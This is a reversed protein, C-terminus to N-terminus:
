RGGFRLGVLGQIDTTKLTGTVEGPDRIYQNAMGLMYRGDILLSAKGSLPIAFAVNGLLGYDLNYQGAEAFTSEAAEGTLNDTTKVKGTGSAAYGGLGLVVGRSLWFKLLLPVQITNYKFTVDLTSVGAADAGKVDFKKQYYLGGLELGVTRGLPFEFLLGGGMGLKAKGEILNASADVLNTAKLTGYHGVGVLSVRPGAFASSGLIATIAMLVLIKKMSCSRQRKLSQKPNHGLEGTRNGSYMM